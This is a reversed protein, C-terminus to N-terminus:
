AAIAKEAETPVESPTLLESDPSKKEAIGYNGIGGLKVILGKEVLENGTDVWDMAAQEDQLQSLRANVANIAASLLPSSVDVLTEGTEGGNCAKEFQKSISEFFDLETKKATAPKLVADLIEDDSLEVEDVNRKEAKAKKNRKGIAALLATYAAKTQKSPYENRVGRIESLWDHAGDFKAGFVPFARLKSVQQSKSGDTVIDYGAANRAALWRDYYREVYNIADAGTAGKAPINVNPIAGMAAWRALELGLNVLSDNGKGKATGLEDIKANIENETPINATM